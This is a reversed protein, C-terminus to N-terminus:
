YDSFEKIEIEGKSIKVCAEDFLEQLDSDNFLIMMDSIEEAVEDQWDETPGLVEDEMDRGNITLDSSDNRVHYVNTEDNYYSGQQWSFSELQPFKEFIPQFYECILKEAKEKKYLVKNIKKQVENRQKMLDVLDSLNM